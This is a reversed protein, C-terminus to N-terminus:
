PKAHSSMKVKMSTKEIQPHVSELRTMNPLGANPIPNVTATRCKAPTLVNQMLGDTGKGM